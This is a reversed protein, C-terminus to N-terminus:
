TIDPCCNEVMKPDHVGSFDLSFGRGLFTCNYVNQMQKWLASSGWGLSGSTSDCPVGISEVANSVHGNVDWLFVELLPSYTFWLPLKSALLVKFGHFCHVESDRITRLPAGASWGDESPLTNVGPGTEEYLLYLDYYRFHYSQLLLHSLM